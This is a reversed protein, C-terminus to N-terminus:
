HGSPVAYKPAPLSRTVTITVSARESVTLDGGATRIAAAVGGPINLATDLTKPDGIAVVRYPPGVATDDVSVHAGSTDTFATSTSVRVTAFQIAEAGAGRLEEIVDLLDEAQLKNDPDTVEVVVGPGRAPLTGLLVGLAQADQEAQQRAAAARDGSNQLRRLTQELEAIQQRLRDARANQDDLIGILDDERLNALNDSSSNQRVQVVIAFGLLATLLAIVVAASLRVFRRHPAPDSAQAADPHAADEDHVDAHIDDDHVGDPV